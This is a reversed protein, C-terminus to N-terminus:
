SFKVWLINLKIGDITVSDIINKKPVKRLLRFLWTYKYQIIYIDSEVESLKQLHKIREIVNNFKGKRNFIDGTFIRAIKM